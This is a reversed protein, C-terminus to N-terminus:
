APAAQCDSGEPEAAPRDAAQDDLTAAGDPPTGDVVAFRNPSQVLRDVEAHREEVRGVHVSPRLLNETASERVPAFRDHKAGLEAFGVVAAAIFDGADVEADCM